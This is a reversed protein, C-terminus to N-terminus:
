MVLIVSRWIPKPVIVAARRKGRIEIEIDCGGKGIGGAM